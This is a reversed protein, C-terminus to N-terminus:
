VCRFTAVHPVLAGPLNPNMPTDGIREGLKRGMSACAQAAMADVEAGTRPAEYRISVQDPTANQITPGCAALLLAPFLAKM